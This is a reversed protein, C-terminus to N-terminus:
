SMQALVRQQRWAPASTNFLPTGPELLCLYHAALIRQRQDGNKLVDLCHARTVPAGMFYRIGAQFRHGNAEWWAAVKVPDPWTLGEDADIDVDEDDPDDNPGAQVTRPREWDLRHVALDVGTILTFAEGASPATRPDSMHHRILWPVYTADGAIGAGRILWRTQNPDLALRRLVDHAAGLEMAQLTLSLARDRHAGAVVGVEALHNLAAGRDGLLVASWSAWFRTGGGGDPSQCARLVPALEACGIEGAARLARLRVAPSPDEFQRRALLGPNVRHVACAAIGTLRASPENAVVLPKVLGPLRAASVWGFASV